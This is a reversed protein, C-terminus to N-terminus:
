RTGLRIQDRDSQQDCAELETLFDASRLFGNCRRYEAGGRRAIKRRRALPPRAILSQSRQVNPDSTTLTPHSRAPRGTHRLGPARGRRQLTRSTSFRIWSPPLM